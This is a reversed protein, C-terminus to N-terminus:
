AANRQEQGEDAVFTVDAEQIIVFQEAGDRERWKPFIDLDTYTVFDGPKISNALFMGSEDGSKRKLWKGPGAAVVTGRNMRDNSIVILQSYEPTKEPRILLYDHLPKFM